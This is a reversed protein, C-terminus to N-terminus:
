KGIKIEGRYGAGYGAQVAIEDMRTEAGQRARDDSGYEGRMARGVLTAYEVALGALMTQKAVHALQQSAQIYSNGAGEGTANFHMAAVNPDNSHHPMGTSNVLMDNIGSGSTTRPTVDNVAFQSTMGLLDNAM